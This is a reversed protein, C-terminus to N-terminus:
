PPSGATDGNNEIEILGEAYPHDWLCLFPFSHLLGERMLPSGSVDEILAIHFRDKRM